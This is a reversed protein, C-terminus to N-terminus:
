TGCAAEHLSVVRAVVIAITAAGPVAVNTAAAARAIAIPLLFTVRTVYERLIEVEWTSAFASRNPLAVTDILDVTGLAARQCRDPRKSDDGLAVQVVDPVIGLVRPSAELVKLLFPQNV